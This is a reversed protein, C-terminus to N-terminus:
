GSDDGAPLEVPTDRDRKPGFLVLSIADKDTAESSDRMTTALKLFADTSSENNLREGRHVLAGLAAVTADSGYIVIRAKSEAALLQAARLEEESTAFRAQAVSRLYDVYAQDRQVRAQKKAETSRSFLQQLIAGLLAAAVPLIAAFYPNM